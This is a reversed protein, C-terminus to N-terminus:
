SLSNVLALLIYKFNAYDNKKNQEKEPNDDDDFNNESDSYDSEYSYYSNCSDSDFCEDVVDNENKEPKENIYGGM